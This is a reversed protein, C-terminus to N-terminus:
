SVHHRVEAEAGGAGDALVCSLLGILNVFKIVFRLIILYVRLVGSYCNTVVAPSNCFFWKYCVETTSHATSAEAVRKDAAIKAAHMAKVKERQAAVEENARVLEAQAGELDVQARHLRHQLASKEQVAKIARNKEESISLAASSSLSHFFFASFRLM